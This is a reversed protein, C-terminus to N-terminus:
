EFVFLRAIVAAGLYQDAQLSPLFEGSECILKIPKVIIHNFLGLDLDFVIYVDFFFFFQYFFHTLEFIQM